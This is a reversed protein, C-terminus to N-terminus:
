KALRMLHLLEDTAGAGQGSLYKWAEHQPLETLSERTGDIFGRLHLVCKSYIEPDQLERLRDTLPSNIYEVADTVISVSFSAKFQELYLAVNSGQRHTAEAVAQRYRLATTFGAVSGEGEPQWVGHVIGTFGLPAWHSPLGSHLRPSLDIIKGTDSKLWSHGSMEHDQQGIGVPPKSGAPGQIFINKGHVLRVEEGVAKLLAGVVFAHDRCSWGADFMGKNECAEMWLLHHLEELFRDDQLDLKM